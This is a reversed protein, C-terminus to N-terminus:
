CAARLRRVLGALWGFLPGGQYREDGLLLRAVWGGASHGVLAVRGHRRPCCHPPASYQSPHVLCCGLPLPLLAAAASMFLHSAVASCPTAFRHRAYRAHMDALLADLRSLYWEFSGGRLIGWWDSLTM